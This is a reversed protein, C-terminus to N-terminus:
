FAGAEGRRGMVWKRLSYSAPCPETSGGLSTDSDCWHWECLSRVWSWGTFLTPSLCSPFGSSPVSPLFPSFFPSLIRSHRLLLIKLLPFFAWFSCPFRLNLFACFASGSCGCLNIKNSQCETSISDRLLQCSGERM